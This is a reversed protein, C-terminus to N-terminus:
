QMLQIRPHNLVIEQLADNTVQLCDTLDLFLLNSCGNILSLIGNDTIRTCKALFICAARRCHLAMEDLAYDTLACGSFNLSQLDSFHAAARAIGQDTLIHNNTLSLSILAHCNQVLALLGEDTIRSHSINLDTISSCNTLEKV